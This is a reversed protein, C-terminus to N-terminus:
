RQADLRQKWRALLVDLHTTKRTGNALTPQRLRAVPSGSAAALRWSAEQIRNM